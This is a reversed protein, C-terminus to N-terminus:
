QRGGKLEQQLSELADWDGKAALAAQQPWTTPDAIRINAEVLIERLEEAKIKSLKDYSIIEKELLLASIKPGIGEIKKLDDVKEEAKAEPEDIVEAEIEEETEDEPLKIAPVPASVYGESLGADDRLFLYVIYGILSGFIIGISLLIKNKTKM